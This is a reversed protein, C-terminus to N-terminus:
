SVPVRITNIGAAKLSDIDDQTFWTDWHNAFTADVTDPYAKAYARCM